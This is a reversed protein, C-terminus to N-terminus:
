REDAPRAPGPHFPRVRAELEADFCDSHVRAGLTPMTKTSDTTLMPKGCLWCLGSEQAM